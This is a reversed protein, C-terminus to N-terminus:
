ISGRRRAAEALRRREEDRLRMREQAAAAEAIKVREQLGILEVGALAARVEAAASAIISQRLDRLMMLRAAAVAEGHLRQREAADLLPGRAAEAQAERIIRDREAERAEEFIRQRESERLRRIADETGAHAAQAREAEDLAAARSAAAVAPDRRGIEAAVHRAMEVLQDDSLADLGLPDAEDM